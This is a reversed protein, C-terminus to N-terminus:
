EAAVADTSDAQHTPFDAPSVIELMELDESCAILEHRLGSPQLVSDGANFVHEGQGEYAFTVSGKLVFVMQFRVDHHHAGSGGGSNRDLAQSARIIHAVFDGKTAAAIGLDRYSFFSRLGSEFEADSAKSVVFDYRKRGM